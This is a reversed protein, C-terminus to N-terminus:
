LNLLVHGKVPGALMHERIFPCTILPISFFVNSLAVFYPFNQFAMIGWTRFPSPNIFSFFFDKSFQLLGNIDISMRTGM